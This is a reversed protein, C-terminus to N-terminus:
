ETREPTTMAASYRAVRWSRVGWERWGPTQPPVWIACPRSEIRLGPNARAADLLAGHAMPGLSCIYDTDPNARALNQAAIIQAFNVFACLYLTGLGLAACRTLLWAANRGRLTQVAVLGLGIAVLGMWIQAYLRLYTLGFTDIYHELRLMAAGCLVMNQGLWLLLLPRIARHEHLFPQAALAFAGALLATALLPYAGRHAYEALSMGEPLAAGFVLISLDTVSQLAILANFLVLARLVSRPNLGLRAAGPLAIPSLPVPAPLEPSLLPAVFLAAAGWFAARSLASWLDLDLALMQTLVPNAQMLLGLFVLSGALPFAWDRLAKRASQSARSPRTIRALVGARPLLPALWHGPLHRLFAAALALMETTGAEPRRLWVLSGALGLGLCAFSLAQLHEVVPAAALVLLVLPRASLRGCGAAAVGLIAFAFLALSLGPAHHWFLLDALAVLGALGAWHPGRTARAEGPPVDPPGAVPADLWWGDRALSRPLGPILLPQTM